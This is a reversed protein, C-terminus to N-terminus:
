LPLDKRTFKVAGAIYLMVAIVGLVAYGILSSSDVSSTGVTNIADIDLLDMVAHKRREGLSMSAISQAMDFEFLGALEGARGLDEMGRLKRQYGLFGDARMSSPLSMEGLLYGIRNMMRTSADWSLVRAIQATGSDPKSFGM